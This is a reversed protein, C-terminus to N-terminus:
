KILPWVKSRRFHSMMIEVGDQYLKGNKRELNLKDAWPNGQWFTYVYRIGSNEVTRSFAGEVWGNPKPSFMYEKWGSCEYFLNNVRDINRYLTWPGCVYSSHNSHLDLGDLFGDTVWKDVDGFVCDLDVHGWFDYGVLEDRYLLGLAPRFDWAKGEGPVIPSKQGFLKECRNNFDDLDTVLLWDYGAPPEYHEIWDPLQGFFCTILKKKINAM